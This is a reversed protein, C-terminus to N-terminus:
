KLKIQQIKTPTIYIYRDEGSFPLLDVIESDFNYNFKENGKMDYILCNSKNYMMVGAKTLMINTYDESFNKTMVLDGSLNYVDIKHQGKDGDSNYYLGVYSSNYFVKDVKNDLTVDTILKPYEKISYISLIKEGFAVVTDLNVFQVKPVLMGKYTDYGGVIRDTESQGVEGFNYFVVSSNFEVGAVSTYAVVIKKDDDSISLSLPVGEGSITTKIKYTQDGKSDYKAIFNAKKDELIAVLSGNSSLSYRVIPLATNIEAVVGNSDFLYAENSDLGVIALYDGSVQASVNNLEFTNNWLQEHSGNFYSAGDKSYRVYGNEFQIYTSTSTDTRSESSVVSYDSYVTKHTKILIVVISIIVLVVAAIIIIRIRRRHEKIRTEFDRNEGTQIRTTRDVVKLREKRYQRIDAM